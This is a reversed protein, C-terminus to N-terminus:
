PTYRVSSFGVNEGTTMNTANLTILYHGGNVMSKASPFSTPYTVTTNLTTAEGWMCAPNTVGLNVCDLDFVRLSYAVTGSTGLSPWTWNPRLGTGTNMVFSTPVSATESYLKFTGYAAAYYHCSTGASGMQIKGGGNTWTGTFTDTAPDYSGTYSGGMAVGDVTGTWNGTLQSSTRTGRITGVNTSGYCGVYSFPMIGEFSGNGTPLTVLTAGPTPDEPNNVPDETYYGIYLKNTPPPPSSSTDGSGGGGCASLLAAVSFLCGLRQLRQFTNKGQSTSIPEMLATSDKTM